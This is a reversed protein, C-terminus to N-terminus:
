VAGGRKGQTASCPMCFAAVFPLRASTWRSTRSPVLTFALSLQTLEARGGSVEWVVAWRGRDARADAVAEGAAGVNTAQQDRHARSHGAQKNENHTQGHLIQTERPMGERRRPERAEKGKRAILANDKMPKGIKRRAKVLAM